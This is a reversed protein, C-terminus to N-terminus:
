GMWAGGGTYNGHTPRREKKAKEKKVMGPFLESFAWVFADARNPSNEGIYGAITFSCLEDELEPFTGGFRIKGQETLSSIPEARVVKGRTATVKKYPVGPKAARVVYKVMEGGYNTEAVIVDASHRDFATTAINGWVKPGAKVTLDELLYGYGDTGLGAVVIGIADNDQNDQDGSGSPDISVVIRQMDPLEDSRWKEITEISWLANETTDTFEGEYFRKRMRIPMNELQKIYSEPLNEKNDGPNMQLSGYEDPNPLNKNTEPDAKKIFLKYSWHAQSPPNCDYLMKLSLPKTVGDVTYTCSQALRTMVILVSSYPIQSSENLYITSYENGLIKETREKDDLGGFWIQSRNPFEAFWDTKNMHYTVEPFCLEMVKPFTDYIVSAKIHNFRFRVIAHRSGKAAMARIVVARIAIFTKGSRSGGFLMTYVFQGIVNLAETQKSTLNFSKQTM